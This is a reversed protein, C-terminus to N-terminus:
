GFTVSGSWGPSNAACPTVTGQPTDYLPIWICIMTGDSNPVAPQPAFVIGLVGGDDSCNSPIGTSAWAPPYPPSIVCVIDAPIIAYNGSNVNTTWVWVHSTANWAIYGNVTYTTGSPGTLSGTVPINAPQTSYTPCSTLTGSSSSSSGCCPPCAFSYGM